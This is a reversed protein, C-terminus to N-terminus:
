TRRARHQGLILYAILLGLLLVDAVIYLVHLPSGAPEGGALILDTRANLPPRIVLVQILLVAWLGDVTAWVPRSVRPRLVSLATLAILLM